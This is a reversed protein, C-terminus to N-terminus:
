TQESREGDANEQLDRSEELPEKSGGDEATEEKERDTTLIITDDKFDVDFGGVTASIDRLKFYTNDNINYGEMEVDSGNLKIPFPNPAATIGAAIAGIAGSLLAGAVFGAIFNRKM